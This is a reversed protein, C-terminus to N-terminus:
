PAFTYDSVSTSTTLNAYQVLAILKLEAASVTANASSSHFRYIGTMTGNDVVFLRDNGTAYASTASGIKAAAKTTTITGSINSTFVVLEANKSFGGPANRTVAGEVIADGDGLHIGSQRSRFTDDGHSFDTVTDAGVLSDFVIIDAGTGRTVKDAGTGGTLTDAGDGGILTDNGGLGSLKNAANNGTLRNRAANGTGNVAAGGTLTLNELNKPLTYTLSTM